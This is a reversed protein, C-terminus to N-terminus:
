KDGKIKLIIGFLVEDIMEGATARWNFTNYKIVFPKKDDASRPEFYCDKIFGDNVEVVHRCLNCCQIMDLEISTKYKQEMNWKDRDFSSKSM